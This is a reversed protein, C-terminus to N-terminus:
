RGKTDTALPSRLRTWGAVNRFRVGFTIAKQNLSRAITTIQNVGLKEGPPSRSARAMHRVSPWLQESM